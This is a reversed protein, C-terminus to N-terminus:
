WSFTLSLSDSILLIILDISKGFFKGHLCLLLPPDINKHNFYHTKLLYLEKLKLKNNIDITFKNTIYNPGKAQAIMQDQPQWLRFFM